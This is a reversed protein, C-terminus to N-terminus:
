ILWNQYMTIGHSTNKPSGRKSYGRGSHYLRQGYPNTTNGTPTKSTNITIKEKIEYTIDGVTLNPQNIEPLEEGQSGKSYRSRSRSAKRQSPVSRQRSSDYYSGRSSSRKSSSNKLNQLMKNQFSGKSSGKSKRRKSDPAPLNRLSLEGRDVKKMLLYYLTTYKNHDNEQIMKEILSYSVKM